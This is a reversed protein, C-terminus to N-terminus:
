TNSKSTKEKSKKFIHLLFFLFTFPIGLALSSADNSVRRAGIFLVNFPLRSRETWISTTLRSDGFITSCGSWKVGKLEVKSNHSVTISVIAVGNNFSVQCVIGLSTVAAASASSVVLRTSIENTFYFTLRIQLVM